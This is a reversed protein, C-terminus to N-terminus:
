KEWNITILSSGDTSLIHEVKYGKAQLDLTMDVSARWHSILTSSNYAIEFLGNESACLMDAVVYRKFKLLSSDRMEAASLLNKM